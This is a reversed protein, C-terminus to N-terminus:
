RGHDQGGGVSAPRAAGCLFLGPGGQVIEAGSLGGVKLKEVAVHTVQNGAQLPLIANFFEATLDSGSGPATPKM